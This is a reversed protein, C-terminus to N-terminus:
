GKRRLGGRDSRRDRSSGRLAALVFEVAHEDLEAESRGEGTDPGQGSKPPPLWGLHRILPEALVSRALLHPDGARIDGSGQGDLIIGALTSEISSVASRAPEPLTKEGAVQRLLLSPVDPNEALYSCCLRVVWELRDLAAGPQGAIEKVGAALPELGSALVARYLAEKSGFHYTVAGLNAGARRTLSRVSTGDYGHRGFLERGAEVM